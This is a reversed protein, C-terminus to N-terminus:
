RFPPRMRVCSPVQEFPCAFCAVPSGTFDENVDMSWSPTFFRSHWGLEKVDRLPSLMGTIAEPPAPLLLMEPVSEDFSFAIGCQSGADEMELSKWEPVPFMALTLSPM